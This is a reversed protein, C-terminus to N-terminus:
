FWSYLIMSLLWSHSDGHLWSLIDGSIYDEILLTHKRKMARCALLLRFAHAAKATCTQWWTPRGSSFWNALHLHEFKCHGSIALHNNINKRTSGMLILSHKWFSTGCLGGYGRGDHLNSLRLEAFGASPLQLSELLEQLIAVWLHFGRSFDHLM